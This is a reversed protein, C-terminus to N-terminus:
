HHKKSAEAARELETVRTEIDEIEVAKASHAIIAEAAWVKTSAPTGPDVMVKGLTSVAASSMQHLKAISQGFAARRAERYATQFEPQRQWRM